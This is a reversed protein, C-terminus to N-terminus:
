LELAKEQKLVLVRARISNSGNSCLGLDCLMGFLQKALSPNRSVSNVSNVSNTELDSEISFRERDRNGSRRISNNCIGCGNIKCRGTLDQSCRLAYCPMASPYIGESCEGTSDRHLTDLHAYYWTHPMFFSHIMHVCKAGGGDGHHAISHRNPPQSGPHYVKPIGGIM